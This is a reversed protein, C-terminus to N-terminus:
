DMEDISKKRDSSRYTNRHSDQGMYIHQSWIMIEKGIWSEPNQFWSSNPNFVEIIRVLFSDSWPSEKEIIADFFQRGNHNDPAAIRVKDGISVQDPDIGGFLILDGAAHTISNGWAVLNQKIASMALRTDYKLTTEGTIYREIMRRDKSLANAAAAIGGRNEWNMSNMWNIFISSSEWPELNKHLLQSNSEM